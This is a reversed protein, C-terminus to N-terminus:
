EFLSEADLIIGPPDLVSPGTSVILTDIGDDERKRHHVIMHKSVSIILYHRISPVRMYDAFKTVGDIRSSSPSVVEVVVIPNPAAVADPDIRPGCNVLADPEYDGTAGIRVTMGDAMAQCEVGARRIADRLAAWAASKAINHAAREPSMAIVRGDVREFRGGPQQEAWAYYADRDLFIQGEPDQEAM